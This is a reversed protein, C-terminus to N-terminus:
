GEEKQRPGGEGAEVGGFGEFREREGLELM